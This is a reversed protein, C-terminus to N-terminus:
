PCADLTIDGSRWLAHRLTTAYGACTTGALGRRLHQVVMLIAADIPHLGRRVLDQWTARAKAEKRWTVPELGAAALRDIAETDSIGVLSARLGGV